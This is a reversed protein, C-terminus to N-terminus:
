DVRQFKEGSYRRISNGRLLHNHQTWLEQRAQNEKSSILEDVMKKLRSLALKKNLYQTREERAIAVLGTSIHTIKVATEVKNVNQGGPGSSKMTEIQIDKNSFIFEDPESFFEVDIFWNKRKHNTRYPSKCIWLITGRCETILKHGNELNSSILLSKATDKESDPQIDIIETWFSTSHIENMLENAFLVVARSCEIPGRGGSIQIWM